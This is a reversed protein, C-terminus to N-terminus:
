TAVGKAHIHAGEGDIEGTKTLLIAYPRTSPFQSMTIVIAALIPISLFMGPVGWIMGWAALSLIIFIPSLNLSDGTLRPDLISGVGVHLASLSFGVLFVLSLDGYQVLAIAAPLLISVLSGVYPIFNLIFTMVGWFQAFDIHFLRLLVWTSIGVLASVFTKVWIYRQIKDDINRLVKEVRAEAGPSTAMERLKRGFYRQEYLLFGTYFLVVLTKGAIGTFTAVLVKIFGAIDLYSLIDAKNPRYAAPIQNLLEPLFNELKSQYVPAQTMVDVANASIMKYIFWLGAILMFIALTICVLRQTNKGKLVFAGLGRAIANILYWVFVAIVLPIMIASAVHLIYVILCVVIFGLAFSSAVVPAPQKQRTETSMVM